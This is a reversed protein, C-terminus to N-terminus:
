TELWRKLWAHLEQYFFRSNEGKQIWHNEEPFVILRSPIQLRQLVSWNELSQNLPVRFDNEGVTLLIPTRFNKAFRIPNQERWVKSQEWVPGGINVERHYITDSTGWQSELNILGAHSILCRYRTTTAQLWNVLHGGYSAGAAAQRSADLFSFRRIAEDAAENMERGCRGFPDLQIDQAFKEGFGTSGTYNTMLVVYGPQALLHYNWRLFFQDRWMSHPGGHILVLLPYKRNRDFNPPLAVLSHIKRGDRSTFWFHELPQWDIGAVREENFATLAQHRGATVDIRVVEAPNVASEWNAILHTQPAKSPITLNSYAGLKTELALRIENQAAPLSFLKEHGAEEALLYITQSDPSFAFTNVSRDFQLSLIEPNRPHPWSLKGLRDLNYVKENEATVIYYLAQGDPRFAPKSYSSDGSTLAKPEGEGLGVEFLHTSVNAYAARNKQTTVVFVISRGDPAWVAELNQGSLTTNAAFGPQAALQTGALLDRATSTPQADQVFLHMQLDDLWKDWYRIPFGEYVRANHKRARREAAIKRNAEDDRTGPYVMSSFLLTKGDPSWKPASAGTSLSSIRVSEGGTALDLVYIQNVEDGERKATFALKRSDPSWALDGETGKSYTLRKASTGGEVPVLWLDSTQEKEDYAPETVPFAVWKGDPSPAPAGVRRMLWLDEHTIPKKGATALPPAVFAALAFVLMLRRSPRLTVRFGLPQRNTLSLHRKKHLHMIRLYSTLM